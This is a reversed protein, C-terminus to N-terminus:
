APASAALCEKVGAKYADGKKGGNAKTCASTRQEQRLPNSATKMCAKVASKYDDGTKDKNAAACDSKAQEMSTLPKSAAPASVDAAFASTTAVALALASIVHKM